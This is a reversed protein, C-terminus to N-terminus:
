RPVFSFITGWGSSGGSLTTGYLTGDSVQLLSAQPEYGDTSDFSHLVKFNGTPTIGFITGCGSYAAQSVCHTGGFATTGYLIGNSSAILAAAPIEGDACNTKSCFDYLTTLQGTPTIQFITGCGQGNCSTSSVNVGGSAATGYFNGSKGLVLGAYPEEGDSCNPQACFSYITTLTGASMKYITGFDGHAGGSFTTGYFTGSRTQLLAGFPISGDVCNTKSCFNYLTTLTGAPTIEFLTGYGTSGGYATTGYFNGNAAQILSAVPAYGDACLSLSCFSYLTTLAGEPTVEFVTGDGHTGGYNTVGYFNGNRALTLSAVPYSGDACKPLSCFNYLTTLLGTPTIQFVTGYGGGFDSSTTGYFNGNAGQVLAGFPNDGNTQNFSLLSSFTQSHAPITAASFLLLAVLALSRPHLPQM